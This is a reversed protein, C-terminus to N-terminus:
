RVKEGKGRRNGSSATDDRHCQGDRPRSAATGPTVRCVARRLESKGGGAAITHTRRRDNLGGARNLIRLVVPDASSNMRPTRGRRRSSGLSRTFVRANRGSYGPFLKLERGTRRRSLTRQTGCGSCLTTSMCMPGARATCLARSARGCARRPVCRAPSCPRTYLRVLHQVVGRGVVRGGEVLVCGVEAGGPTQIGLEAEAIALRMMAEDNM